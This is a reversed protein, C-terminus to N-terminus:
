EATLMGVGGESGDAEGRTCGEEEAEDEEDADDDVAADESIDLDPATRTTRGSGVPRCGATCANPPLPPLPPPPEMGGGAAEESGASM